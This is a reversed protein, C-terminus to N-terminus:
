IVGARLIDHIHLVGVPKKDELVFLNTISKGEMISLAKSALDDPATVRPNRTMVDEVSAKTMDMYIHRRLDGDTIIGVLENNTDVIGVCGLGKKTMVDLAQSMPTGSAVLPMTEGGHMLNRVKIFASGLKGGPHFVNFDEGNFGRRELLAVALADGLALMMTTSTTPAKVSCAEPVEPLVLAVTSATVLVSTKRRVMGILPISFRGCYSIIDKLEVTEGSNSLLIVVDDRTIMGLDGHSAEAPHVFLAPTGTSAMTAAIKRAVHGSKGMGSVIVRGKAAFLVGVAQIFADGLWDELAKLGEIEQELVRKATDIDAHHKSM